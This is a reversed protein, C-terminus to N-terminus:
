RAGFFWFALLLVIAVVVAVPLLRYMGNDSRQAEPQEEPHSDTGHEPECQWEVLEKLEKPTKSEKTDM